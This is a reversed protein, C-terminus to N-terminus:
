SPACWAFWFLLAAFICLAFGSLVLGNLVSSAKPDDGGRLLRRMVFWGGLTVGGGGLLSMALHGWWTLKASSGEAAAQKVLPAPLWDYLEPQALFNMGLFGVALAAVVGVAAVRSLNTAAQASEAQARNFLFQNASEIEKGVDDFLRQLNMQRRLLDYLEGAQLQNSVGTFRFRHVFQLFQENIARMHRGFRDGAAGDGAAGEYCEAADSIERSLLLLTAMEMHALLAMQYYHRRMHMAVHQDFGDGAGLAVFSYGSVFYRTGWNAFRDYAHRSEFDGLFAPNCPFDRDAPTTRGYSNCNDAFCLRALDGRRVAGLWGGPRSGGDKGTLSVTLLTPMREDVVHRWVPEDQRAAAGALPLAGGLLDKWHEFVPPHRSDRTAGEVYAVVPGTEADLDRPGLADAGKTRLWTLRKVVLHSAQRVPAESKIVKHTVFPHYARRLLDHLDEVDALTLGAAANARLDTVLLAVGTRFLYLLVRDVTLTTKRTEEGQAWEVYAAAIDNRRFLVVPPAGAGSTKPNSFLFKRVFPHFYVGEAYVENQWESFELKNATAPPAIHHALDAVPTWIERLTTRIREANEQVVKAVAGGKDAPHPLSVALPWMLTLRASNVPIDLAPLDQFTVAM